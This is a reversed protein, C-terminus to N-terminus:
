NEGDINYAGVVQLFIRHTKQSGVRHVSFQSIQNVGTYGIENAFKAM